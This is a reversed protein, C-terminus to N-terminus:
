QTRARIITPTLAVLKSLNPEIITRLEEACEKYRQLSAPDGSGPYPDAIGLDNRDGLDGEFFERFLRTREPPLNKLLGTDMALILTADETMAPTLTAPCHDSLLDIGFLDKIAQRAAPTAQKATPWGAAASEIRLRAGQRRESLLYRTIAKAMACRCTGGQSVYVILAEDPLTKIGLTQLWRKVEPGVTAAIRYSDFEGYLHGLLDSNLRQVHKEKLLLCKKGKGFMYGLELSVNPNIDHAEIQELVAIGLGCAEMCFCVNSWLETAYSKEDACILNLGHDALTTGISQRIQAYQDGSGFRVMLFVNREPNPYDALVPNTTTPVSM